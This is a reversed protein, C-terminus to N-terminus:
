SRAEVPEITWGFSRCFTSAEWRTVVIWRSLPVLRAVLRDPGAAERASALSDFLTGM